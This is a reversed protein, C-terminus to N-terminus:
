RFNTSGVLKVLNSDVYDMIVIGHNGSANKFASRLSSNVYTACTLQGIGIGACGSSFNLFMANPDNDPDATSIKSDFDSFNAYKQKGFMPNYTDYSYADQIHLTYSGRDITFAANDAWGNRANIGRTLSADYTNYRRMLVVKGRVDDLAPIADDTYFLGSYKGEIWSNVLLQEFEASEDGENKVSMIVCESPHSKLFDSVYQMVTKFSVFCKIFGHYCQLEDGDLVLRIDLFRIGMNLQERVGLNQCRGLVVKQTTSDHTGPITFQALTLSGDIDSMWDKASFGTDALAPTVFTFAICLVLCLALLSKGASHKKM